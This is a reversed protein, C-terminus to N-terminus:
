VRSLILETQLILTTSLIGNGVSLLAPPYSLNQAM